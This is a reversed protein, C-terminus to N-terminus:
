QPPAYIFAQQARYQELRRGMEAVDTSGTKLKDAIAREVTNAAEEYQGNAALAAALTDLRQPTGSAPTQPLQRLITLAQARDAPALEPATALFWAWREALMEDGPDLAHAQRMTAIAEAVSGRSWLVDAMYMRARASQPDLRAAAQLHPLAADLQGRRQLLHGLYLQGKPYAPNLRVAAEFQELAAAEQGSQALAAGYNCRIEPRDPSLAVAQKFHELAEPLRNQRALQCGLQDHTAANTPDKQAAQQLQALSEQAQGQQGLLSGLSAIAPAYNPDDALTQRYWRIAEDTRGVEAFAWGVSYHFHARRASPDDFRLRQNLPGFALGLLLAALACAASSPRNRWQPLVSLALAASVALLPVAPLRYRPSYFFALVILTPVLLLILEPGYQRPRRVFRAAGLLAPLMLLPTALPTLYLGNLLGAQLELTPYFVEGINRGSLLWWLKRLELGLARGPEGAWYSLGRHFFYRNVGRWSQPGGTAQRYVRMAEANQIDRETSVGPLPTYTGDAGPANGQAFTIGAQASIPIFEGCALLNHVTAPAIVAVAPGCVWAAARWGRSGGRVWWAWAAVLPVALLLPPNALAGLGVLVGTLTWPGSTDRQAARGLSWWLAVTLFLQLTCNLVRSAYYSPELLLAFLGAALLGIGAGFRRAATYGLLTITALHLGAQLGYVTPLGGGLKRILALLYPYLPASMFPESGVWHGAAIAGAWRWYTELDAPLLPNDRWGHYQILIQSVLAWLLIGSLAIWWWRPPAPLHSTAQAAGDSRNEGPRSRKRAARTM